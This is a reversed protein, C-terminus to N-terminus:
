RQLRGLAHRDAERSGGPARGKRLPDRERDRRLRRQRQEDWARAGGRPLDGQGPRAESRSTRAGREPPARHRPAPGAGRGNEAGTVLVVGSRGAQIARAADIVCAQSYNGGYPTGVTEAPTARLRRAIERGPDGYRWAGRLVYISDARQLLKPAGCDEGALELAAVMMGLPEVADRPDEVRQLIQG